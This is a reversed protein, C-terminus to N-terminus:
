KQLNNLTELLEEETYVIRFFNEPLEGTFGEEITYEIAEIIRDFYGDPNFIVIEKSQEHARKAEMASILEDITGLGGPLFVLLQSYKFIVKKREQLTDLQLSVDCKLKELDDSWRKLTIAIIKSQNPKKRIASYIVGMLGNPSAGFVYNHNNEVIWRAIQKAADCSKKFVENQPERSSCGVFVNM